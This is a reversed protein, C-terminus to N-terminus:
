SSRRGVFFRDTGHRDEVEKVVRDVGALRAALEGDGPAMLRRAQTLHLRAAAPSGEAVM